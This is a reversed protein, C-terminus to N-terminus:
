RDAPRLSSTSAATTVRLYRLRGTYGEVHLPQCSRQLESVWTRSRPRCSQTTGLESADDRPGVLLSSRSEPHGSRRLHLLRTSFALDMSAAAANWSWSSASRALRSAPSWSRRHARNCPQSDPPCEFPRGDLGSVPLSRGRRTGSFLRSFVRVRTIVYRGSIVERHSNWAQTRHARTAM